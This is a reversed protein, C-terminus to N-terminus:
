EFWIECEFSNYQCFELQLCLVLHLLSISIVKMELSWEDFCFFASMVQLNSIRSSAPSTTSQFMQLLFKLLTTSNVDIGLIDLIAPALILVLVLEEQMVSLLQVFLPSIIKEIWGPNCNCFQNTSVIDMEM